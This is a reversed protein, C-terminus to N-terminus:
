IRRFASDYENAMRHILSDYHLSDGPLPAPAYNLVQVPSGDNRLSFVSVGVGDFGTDSNASRRPVQSVKALVRETSYPQRHQTWELELKRAINKSNRISSIFETAANIQVYGVALANKSAGHVCLHSSNLEDYLRPLSKIHETMCAKAELAVLVATSEIDGVPVDPLLLLEELENANLFIGFREALSSFTEGGVIENGTTRAIVLDLDKKRDTAFDRMTQNLGIAIKGEAAHHRMLASHRLLDFAIGWCGVKSHRDSRSNYQWPVGNADNPGPITLFRALINPGYM